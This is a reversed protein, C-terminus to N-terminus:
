GYMLKRMLTSCPHKLWDLRLISLSLRHTALSVRLSLSSNVCVNVCITALEVLRFSQSLSLWAFEVCGTIIQLCLQKYIESMQLKVIFGPSNKHLSLSTVLHNEPSPKSLM